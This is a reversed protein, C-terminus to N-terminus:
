VNIFSYHVNCKKISPDIGCVYNPLDVYTHFFDNFYYKIYVGNKRDM